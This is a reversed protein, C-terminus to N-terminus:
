QSFDLGGLDVHVTDAPQTSKGGMRPMANQLESDTGLAIRAPESVGSPALRNIETESQAGEGASISHLEEESSENVLLSMPPILDKSAAVRLIDAMLTSFVPFNRLTTNQLLLLSLLYLGQQDEARRHTDTTDTETPTNGSMKKPFHSM